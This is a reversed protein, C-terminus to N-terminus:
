SPIRVKVGAPYQDWVQGDIKPVHVLKGDIMAQKLFFPVGARVCQDRLAKTWVLDMPRENPGSECGAIVWDVRPVPRCPRGMDTHKGTLADIQCWEPHVMDVDLHDLTVPGLMPEVSVVRRAAPTDLLLPVRDVATEQDEASVGLIVNALPRDAWWSVMELRLKRMVRRMRDARKTLVIFTHQSATEMVRFVDGIFMESVQEHFLDSMPCVFVLRPKKSRIPDDLRDGHTHVEGFPVGPVHCAPFRETVRKAYCRACGASVPTCGTIPSWTVEAWSIKTKNM